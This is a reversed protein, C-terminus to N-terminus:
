KKKGKKGKKGKKKKGKGSKRDEITKYYVYVKWSLIDDQMMSKREEIRRYMDVMDWTRISHDLSASYLIGGVFEVDTVADEHGVLEELCRCTPIDWVRISRDDSSSYLYDGHIRLGLVWGKHGQFTKCEQSELNWARIIPDCGGIFVHTESLLVTKILEQSALLVDQVKNTKLDVSRLVKDWTAVFLRSSTISVALASVPDSFQFVLLCEATELTWVRVTADQSGSYVVKDDCCLANVSGEHGMMESALEGAELDYACLMGDSYGVCTQQGTFLFCLLEASQGPKKLRLKKLCQRQKLDWVRVMGEASGSILISGEHGSPACLCLVADKHGKLRDKYARAKKMM